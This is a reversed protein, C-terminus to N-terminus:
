FFSGTLPMSVHCGTMFVFMKYLALMKELDEEEQINQISAYPSVPGRCPCSTWIAGRKESQILWKHISDPVEKALISSFYCMKWPKTKYLMWCLNHACVLSNSPKNAKTHGASLEIGLVSFISHNKLSHHIFSHIVLQGEHVATFEAHNESITTISLYM